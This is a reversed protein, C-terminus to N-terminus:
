KLNDFKKDLYKVIKEFKPKDKPNVIFEDFSGYRSQHGFIYKIGCKIREFFPRKNLHTRIFIMPYGDEESYMFLMQHETSNCECIIIEKEKEM